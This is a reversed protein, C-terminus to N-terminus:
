FQDSLPPPPVCPIEPGLQKNSPLYYVVKLARKELKRYGIKNYMHASPKWLGNKRNGDKEPVGNKM